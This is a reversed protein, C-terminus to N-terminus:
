ARRVQRARLLPKPRGFGNLEAVFHKVQRLFGLAHVEVACHPCPFRPVTQLSRISKSFPHTCHPCQVALTDNLMM